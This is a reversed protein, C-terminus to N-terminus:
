APPDARQLVPHARREEEAGGVLHLQRRGPVAEPLRRLIHQSAERDAAGDGTLLRASADLLQLEGGGIRQRQGEKGAPQASDLVAQREDGVDMEHGIVHHGALAQHQLPLRLEQEGVVM